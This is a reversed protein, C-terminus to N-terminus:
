TINLTKQIIIRNKKDKDVKWDLKIYLKYDPNDKNMLWDIMYPNVAAKASNYNNNIVADLSGNLSYIIGTM